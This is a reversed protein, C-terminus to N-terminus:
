DQKEWVEYFFEQCPGWGGAKVYVRKFNYKKFEEDVALKVEIQYFDNEIIVMVVDFLQNNILTTREKKSLNTVCDFKVVQYFRDKAV